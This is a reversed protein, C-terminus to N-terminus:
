TLGGWAHDFICDINDEAATVRGWVTWKGQQRIEGTPMLDSTTYIQYDIGTYWM